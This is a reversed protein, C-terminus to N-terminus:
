VVAERDPDMTRYKMLLLVNSCLSWRDGYDEMSKRECGNRLEFAGPYYTRYSAKSLPKM